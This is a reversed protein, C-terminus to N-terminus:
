KFIYAYSNKVLELFGEDYTGSIYSIITLLLAVSLMLALDTAIELPGLHGSKGKNAKELEKSLYESKKIYANKQQDLEQNEKELQQIKEKLENITNM